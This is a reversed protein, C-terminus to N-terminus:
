ALARALYSGSRYRIFAAAGKTAAPLSPLCLASEDSLSFDRTTATRYTWTQFRANGSIRFFINRNSLKVAYVIRSGLNGISNSLDRLRHMSNYLKTLMENLQKAENWGKPPRENVTASWRPIEVATGHM